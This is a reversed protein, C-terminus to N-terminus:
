NDQFFQWIMAGDSPDLIIEHNAESIIAYQTSNYSFEMAARTIGKSELKDCEGCKCFVKLMKTVEKVLEVM